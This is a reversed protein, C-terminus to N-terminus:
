GEALKKQLLNMKNRAALLQQRLSDAHRAIDEFDRSGADDTLKQARDVLDGLRTNLEGLANRVAEPGGGEGSSQKAAVQQSIGNLEAADQGLQAYSHFLEKFVETRQQLEQARTTVAQAQQQQTDRVKSIAGVLAQIKEGLRQDSEAVDRLLKAARELNKQSNFPAKKLSEALDQFRDLEESLTAAVGSLESPPSEHKAM